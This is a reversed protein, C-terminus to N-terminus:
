GRELLGRGPEGSDLAVKWLLSALPSSGVALSGRGEQFLYSYQSFHSFSDDLIWEGVM